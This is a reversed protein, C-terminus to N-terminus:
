PVLRKTLWKEAPGVAHPPLRPDTGGPPLAAAVHRAFTPEGPEPVSAVDPAGVPAAGPRRARLMAPAGAMPGLALVQVLAILARPGGAGPPRRHRGPRTTGTM